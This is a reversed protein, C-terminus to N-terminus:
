PEGPAQRLKVRRYTRGQGYRQANEEVRACLRGEGCQIWDAANVADMYQIQTQLRAAEQRAHFLLYAGGGAAILAALGLAVTAFFM